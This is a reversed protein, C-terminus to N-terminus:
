RRVMLAAFFGDMGVRHPYTRFLGRKDTLAQYIGPPTALVYERHRTLFREVLEEGEEPMVSCVAYVLRGGPKVYRAARELLTKQLAAKKGVDEASIRWKIEPARRLIGTGTCPADVLVADFAATFDPGLDRAADGHVMTVSRVGLRGLLVKMAKLRGRHIDLAVIKGKDGMLAALHSTKGGVGACLDLVTEGPQPALLHAVLQSAEDQIQIYGRRFTETDRLPMEGGHLVVGDPGYVTPEAQWGEETLSKIVMERSTQLRNTRVVVPPVENDAKCLAETEKRGFIELWRRVLWRPHSLTIRLYEDDDTTPSPLPPTKHDGTIKRLIANVLPAFPARDTMTIEVAENVAAFAPIRELFFHQYLATRIINRVEVPLSATGKRTYGDMLWDLYGRMRLTGYVLETLLRRDRDDRLRGASLCRDLLGEAFSGGYEVRSLIRVAWRRPADLMTVM